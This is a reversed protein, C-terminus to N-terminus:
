ISLNLDFYSPEVSDWSYNVKLDQLIEQNIPKNSYLRSLVDAKINNKGRIHQVQLSIDYHATLLWLNRICAGLFPDKTKSTAVVHVCAENDCNVM